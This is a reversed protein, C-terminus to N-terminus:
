GARQSDLRPLFCKEGPDRCPQCKVFVNEPVCRRIEFPRVDFLDQPPALRVVELIATAHSMGFWSQSVEAGRIWRVFLGPLARSTNRGADCGLFSQEEREVLESLKAFRGDQYKHDRRHNRISAHTHLRMWPWATLYKRRKYLNSRSCLRGVNERVVIEKNKWPRLFNRSRSGRIARRPSDRAPLRGFERARGRRWLHLAPGQRERIAGSPLPNKLVADCSRHSTGRLIPTQEGSRRITPM